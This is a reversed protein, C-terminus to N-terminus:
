SHGGNTQYLHIPLSVRDITFNKAVVNSVFGAVAPDAHSGPREVSGIRSHRGGGGGGGTPPVGHVSATWTKLYFGTGMNPQVQPDLRIAQAVTNALSTVVAPPSSM